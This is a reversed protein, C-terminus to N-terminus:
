VCDFIHVCTNDKKCVYICVGCVCVLVIKRVCACVRASPWIYVKVERPHHPLLKDGVAPQECFAVSDVQSTCLAPADIVLYLSSCHCAEHISVVVVVVVLLLLM